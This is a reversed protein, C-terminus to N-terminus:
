VSLLLLSLILRFFVVFSLTLRFAATVTKCRDGIDNDDAIACCCLFVVITRVVPRPRTREAAKASRQGARGVWAAHGAETM